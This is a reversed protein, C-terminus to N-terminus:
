SIPAQTAPHVTQVTAKGEPDVTVLTVCTAVGLQEAAAVWATVYRCGFCSPQAILMHATSAMCRNCSCHVSSRAGAHSDGRCSAAPLARCAACSLVLDSCAFVRGAVWRLVKDADTNGPPNIFDAFDQLLGPQSGTGCSSLTAVCANLAAEGGALLDTAITAGATSRAACLQSVYTEVEPQLVTGNGGSAM